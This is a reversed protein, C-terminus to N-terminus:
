RSASCQCLRGIINGIGDIRVTMGAERMWEGVLRHVEKASPCLFPRTIRGPEETCLALRDCRALVEDALSPTSGVSM